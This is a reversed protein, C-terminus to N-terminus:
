QHALGPLKASPSPWLEYNRFLPCNQGPGRRTVSSRALLYPWKDRETASNQREATKMAAIRSVTLVDQKRHLSLASTIALSVSTSVTGAMRPRRVPRPRTAPGRDQS